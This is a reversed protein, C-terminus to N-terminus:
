LLDRKIVSYVSNILKNHLRHLTLSIFGAGHKQAAELEEAFQQRYGGGGKSLQHIRFAALEPGIFAPSGFVQQLRLWYEYDMVYKLETDFAGLKQLAELRIFTAPQPIPNLIELVRRSYLRRWFSKYLQISKQIRQGNADIIRTDGVFWKKEPHALAAEAVKAFAGPLYYDDSNIYAFLKIKAKDTKAKELAWRVGKNIADTQGRDKESVYELKSKFQKLIEKSGDNSGGDAVFYSLNFDGSQSRVSELTERLFVAQNYSPTVIYFSVQSSM